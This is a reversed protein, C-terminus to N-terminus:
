LPGLPDMLLCSIKFPSFISKPGDFSMLKKPGDFFMLHHCISLIQNPGDFSMLAVMAIM